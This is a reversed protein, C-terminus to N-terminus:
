FLRKAGITFAVTSLRYDRISTESEDAVDLGLNRYVRVDSVRASVVEEGIGVFLAADRVPLWTATTNWEYLSTSTTALGGSTGTSAQQMYGFQTIPAAGATAALSYNPTNKSIGTRLIVSDVYHGSDTNRFMSRRLEMGSLVSVGNAILWDAGGDLSMRAYSSGRATVDSSPMASMRMGNLGIFQQGYTNQHAWGLRGSLLPGTHPSSDYVTKSGDVRGAGSASMPPQLDQYRGIGAGVDLSLGVPKTAAQERLSLHSPPQYPNPGEGYTAALSPSMAANVLTTILFIRLNAINFRNKM